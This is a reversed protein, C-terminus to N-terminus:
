LFLGNLKKTAAYQTKSVFEYRIDSDTPHVAVVLFDVNYKGVRKTIEFNFKRNQTTGKKILTNIMAPFSYGVASREVLNKKILIIKIKRIIKSSLPM